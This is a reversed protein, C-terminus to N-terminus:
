GLLRVHRHVIILEALIDGVCESRLILRQSPGQLVSGALAQGRDTDPGFFTAEKLEKDPRAPRRLRDLDARQASVAADPYRASQQGAARQDRELALRRVRGDGPLM